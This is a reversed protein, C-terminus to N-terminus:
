ALRKSLHLSPHTLLVLVRLHYTSVTLVGLPVYSPNQAFMPIIFLAWKPYSLLALFAQRLLFHLAVVMKWLLHMLSRNLSVLTQLSLTTM